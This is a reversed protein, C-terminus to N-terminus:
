NMLKYVNPKIMLVLGQINLSDVLDYVNETLKLHEMMKKVQDINFIDQGKEDRYRRMQELIRMKQKSKSMGSGQEGRSELKGEDTTFIDILSYRTLEIVDQVHAVTVEDVLDVRARAICLRRLAHFQRPTIDFFELMEQKRRLELYFEVLKEVAEPSLRPFIHSRAYGIYNQMLLPPMYDLQENPAVRLFDELAFQKEGLFSKARDDLPVHPRKFTAPDEGPYMHEQKIIIFILDFRTLLAPNIKLNEAVTKAKKYINGVPNGAAIITTRCTLNVDTGYQMITLKQREM